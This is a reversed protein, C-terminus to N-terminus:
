LKYIHLVSKTEFFPESFIESISYLRSQYTKPNIFKLEESLDGGKLCLLGQGPINWRIKKEVWPMFRDLSTVARSVVYDFMGTILEARIARLDVNEINATQCVEHAVKIKKQISDVLVFETEPFFIALPVGPFGGGTGVDLIRQKPKFPHIKAIALAHLFHHVGIHDIDKRSIVNIKANWARYVHMATEFQELQKSTVEPFYRRILSVGTQM